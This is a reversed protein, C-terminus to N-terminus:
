QAEIVADLIRQIKKRNQDWFPELIFGFFKLFDFLNWHKWTTMKPGRPQNQAGNKSAQAGKRAENHDSPTNNESWKVLDPVNKAKRVWQWQM